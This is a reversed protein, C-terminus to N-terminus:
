QGLVEEVFIVGLFWAFFIGLFLLIVWKFYEFIFGIVLAALVASAMTSAGILVFRLHKMIKKPSNKM